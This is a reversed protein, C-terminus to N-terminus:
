PGESEGMYARLSKLGRHLLGAVSGASRTMRRGVEMVTLGELHHLELATRQDRPLRALAETLRLLQERRQVHESPSPQEDALWSVLRASSQELGAELSRRREWDPQGARRALDALQRVLIARLWALLEAEESGRFQAIREHARLLTQQVVDTSDALTRLRPNLGVRSLLHLYDHYRELPWERGSADRFM